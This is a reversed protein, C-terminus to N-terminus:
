LHSLVVSMIAVCRLRKLALARRVIQELPCNFADSTKSECFRAVKFQRMQRTADLVYVLMIIDLLPLFCLIQNKQKLVYLKLLKYHKLLRGM